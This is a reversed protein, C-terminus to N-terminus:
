PIVLLPLFIVLFLTFLLDRQGGHIVWIVEFLAIESCKMVGVAQSIMNSKSVVFLCCAHSLRSFTADSKM